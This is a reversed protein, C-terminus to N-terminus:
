IQWNGDKLLVVKSGDKKIGTVTVDSSGVMFDVHTMSDNMGVKDKEEKSLKAGDKINTAYAAGVAFHCSANEDFLTNQFLIGTNSIPSNDAVLAVEGLMKAGDDTKLLNEFVEQGKEAKFKTIVGDKFTFEMGDVLMGNLALPMTARLKGNVKTKHPMTFVEETPINAFFKEGDQSNGSGGAWIHDKVLCVELDTGPGEYHLKEFRAENLYDQHKKVEEDHKKWAEIPNELDARTAKFINEWLKEMADEESLEPFVSMAWAPNPAAVVGWKIKNTMTYEMVKQMGISRAKAAESIKSADIGKLLSPDAAIITLRHYKNEVLKDFYEKRFDPFLSVNKGKEYFSRTIKEDNFHLVIDEVGIGYAIDSIERALELGNENFYIQLNDGDKLNLGSKVILEAYKKLNKKDMKVM